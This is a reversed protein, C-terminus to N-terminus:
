AFEFIGKVVRRIRRFHGFCAGKDTKVMEPWLPRLGLEVLQSILATCAVVVIDNYNGEKYLKVIDAPEPYEELKRVIEVKGGFIKELARVQVPEPRQQSLWLIKTMM